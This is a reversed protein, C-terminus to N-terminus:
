EIIEYQKLCLEGLGETLHRSPCKLASKSRKLIEAKSHQNQHKLAPKPPISHRNRPRLHRSQRLLVCILFLFLDVDRPFARRATGQTVSVLSFIYSLCMLTTPLESCAGNCILEWSIKTTKKLRGWSMRATANWAIWMAHHLVAECLWSLMLYKPYPNVWAISCDKLLRGPLGFWLFPWFSFNMFKARKPSNQHKEKPFCARNVNFKQEPIGGPFTWSSAKRQNPKGPGSTFRPSCPYCSFGVFSFSCM